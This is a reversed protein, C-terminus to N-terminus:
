DFTIRRERFIELSKEHRLIEDAPMLWSTIFLHIRHLIVSRNTVGGLVVSDGALWCSWESCDM